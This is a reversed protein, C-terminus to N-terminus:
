NHELLPSDETNIHDNGEILLAKALIAGSHFRTPTLCEMVKQQLEALIVPPMDAYHECHLIRLKRYHPHHQPSVGLLKGLEDLKCIDFYKETFLKDLAKEIIVQDFTSM